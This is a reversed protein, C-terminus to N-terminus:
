LTSYGGIGNGDLFGLFCGVIDFPEAAVSPIGTGDFNQFVTETPNGGGPPFPNFNGGIFFDFASAVAGPQAGGASVGVLGTAPPAATYGFYDMCIFTQPLTADIDCFFSGLPTNPFYDANEYCISTIGPTLEEILIRQSVDNGFTLDDWLVAIVPGSGSGALGVDGSIFNSTSTGFDADSGEGGFKIWGNTSVQMSTYSQGYIVYPGSPFVFTTLSEDGFLEVAATFNVDAAETNDLLFPPNSPDRVIAQFAIRFGALFQTTPYSLLLTPVADSNSVYFVDTLPNNTFGIGDGLVAVNNVNPGSLQGLDISGGWPVAMVAGIPDVPSALFIVGTNPNAGTEIAIDLFPGTALNVDHTVPDAVSPQTGNIFIAANPGNLDFQAPLASAMIAILGVVLGISSRSRKM